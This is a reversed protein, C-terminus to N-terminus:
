SWTVNLNLLADTPSSTASSIVATITDGASFTNAGSAATNAPTSSNVTVASLGTVDVGEIQIAVIFSGNGAFYDLNNITGAYPTNFALYVTGNAVVAGSVWQAQLKGVNRIEPITKGGDQLLKGTTGNFTAIRATVASAPGVVDGSGTGVAVGAVFLGAANLTGAGQSGGTAGSLVIGGDDEASLADVPTTTGNAITRWIVRTGHATNTWAESAKVLMGGSGDAAGAGVDTGDWGTGVFDALADGSAVATPSASSGNIRVGAFWGAPTAAAVGYGTGNFVGPEGHGYLTLENDILRATSPEWGSPSSVATGRVILMGETSGVARDLFESLSTARTPGTNEGPNAILWGPPANGSVGALPTLNVSSTGVTSVGIQLVWATSANVDGGVILFASGQAMEAATDFDTRRTLIWPSGGSGADSVTYAGNQAASAQDKVLISLGLTASNGDVTLTGNADASLTAGVGATGNVYTCSPLPETTAMDCSDLWVAAAITGINMLNQYLLGPPSNLDQANEDFTAASTHDDMVAFLGSGNVTVFDMEVYATNPQWEGRWRPMPIEIDVPGLVTGDSLTLSATRAGITFSTIQYPQVPNNEVTTLRTDLDYFNGDVQTASLNSGQGTGWAGTTRYIITM